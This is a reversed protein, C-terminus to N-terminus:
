HVKQLKTRLIRKQCIIICSLRQDGLAGRPGPSSKLNKLFGRAITRKKKGKILYILLYLYCGLKIKNERRNNRTVVFTAVKREKKEM